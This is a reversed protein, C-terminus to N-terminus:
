YVAKNKDQEANRCVPTLMAGGRGRNQGLVGIKLRSYDNELM